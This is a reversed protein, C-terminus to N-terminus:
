LLPAEGQGGAPYVSELMFWGWGEVLIGQACVPEFELVAWALQALSPLSLVGGVHFLARGALSWRGQSLVAADWVHPQLNDQEQELVDQTPHSPHSCSWLPWSLELSFLQSAGEWFLSGAAQWGGKWLKWGWWFSEPFTLCWSQQAAGAGDTM